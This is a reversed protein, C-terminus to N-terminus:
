RRPMARDLRKDTNDFFVYVDPPRPGGLEKSAFEGDRMPRGAAWAEIRRAWAEIEADQYASRYLERAGHLRVYVFDAALDM